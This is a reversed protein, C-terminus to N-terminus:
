RMSPEIGQQRIKDAMRRLLKEVRQSVIDSPVLQCSIWVFAVLLSQQSPLADYLLMKNMRFAERIQRKVRNRDVANKLRKKPVSVLVQVPQSATSSNIRYIVRLPFATYSESEGVAFLENILKQSVLREQKPFGVDTKYM